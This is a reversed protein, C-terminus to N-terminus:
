RPHYLSLPFSDRTCHFAALAFAAALTEARGVLSAVSEVHVPHAAFVLSALLAPLARGGCLVRCAPAFLVVCLAHLAVNTVHYPRPRHFAGSLYTWRYSLVTVPRFSRHSSPSAMPTGWFDNRLLAALPGHAKVDPNMLIAENDDYVM